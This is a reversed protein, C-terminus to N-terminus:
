ISHRRNCTENVSDNQKALLLMAEFKLKDQVAYLVEHINFNTDNQLNWISVSNLMKSYIGDSYKLYNSNNILAKDVDNILKAPIIRKNFMNIQTALRYNM